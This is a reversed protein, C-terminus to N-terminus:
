MSVYSVNNKFERPAIFIQSCQASVNSLTLTLSNDIIVTPTFKHYKTMCYFFYPETYKM